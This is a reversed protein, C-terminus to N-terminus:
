MVQFCTLHSVETHLLLIQWALSVLIFYNQSTGIIPCIAILFHKHLHGICMIFILQLIASEAITALNNNKTILVTFSAIGPFRIM